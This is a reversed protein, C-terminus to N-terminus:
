ISFLMKSYDIDLVLLRKNERLPHIINIALKKTHEQVKRINRQDNQYQLAAKPDSSFDFDLDNVVDPLFELEILDDARLVCEYFYARASVLLIKSKKDKPPAM